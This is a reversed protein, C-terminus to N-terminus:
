SLGGAHDFRNEPHTALRRLVQKLWEVGEFWWHGFLETDYPSVIAPPLASKAANDAIHRELLSVFHDVHGPIDALAQEPDYYAKDSLEASDGTIKWFRMGCIADKRHFERYAAHGPYGEGASWVQRGTLRDRGFVAVDSDSVLYPWATSKHSEPRRERPGRALVDASMFSSIRSPVESVEGGEIAASDAFFAQIGLEELYTELGARYTAQGASVDYYAPRYGCEPLWLSRPKRGFNREYAAVGLSLQGRITSDRSMLPLFPHTAASAILEVYGSDQLQRFAQVLDSAFRQEFAELIHGNWALYYDALRPLAPEDKDSYFRRAEEVRAILAHMYGRFKRVIIPDSLQEALIPTLGVAIRFPCGEEVLDYLADLLPVYTDCIAEHIMEEGHPWVGARRVYPLHSHLVFSFSGKKTLRQYAAVESGIIGM